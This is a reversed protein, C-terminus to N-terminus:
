EAERVRAPALAVVEDGLNVIEETPIGNVEDCNGILKIRLDTRDIQRSAILDKVAQFLPEPTRGFYLTGAYTITFTDFKEGSPEKSLLDWDIGNPIHVFKGLGENNYRKEFVEKLPKTTLIVRDAARVVQREIWVQIRDSWQCQFQPPRYGIHDVWPDRFDAVWHIKRLRKLLLGILHSSHPPTSTIVCSIKERKIVRAARLVAPIVWTWQSDPTSMSLSIVYRKVRQVLGEHAPLITPGKSVGASEYTTGGGNKSLASLLRQTLRYLEPLGPLKATKEIRLQELNISM